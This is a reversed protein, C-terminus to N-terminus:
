FSSPRERGGDKNVKGRPDEEEDCFYPGGKWLLERECLPFNTHKGKKGLFFLLNRKDGSEAVKRKLPNKGGGKLLLPRKEKEKKCARDGFSLQGDGKRKGKTKHKRHFLVGKKKKEGRLLNKERKKAICM